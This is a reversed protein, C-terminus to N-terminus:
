MELELVLKVWAITLHEEGRPGRACAITLHGTPQELKWNILSCQRM